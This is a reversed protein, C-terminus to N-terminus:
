DYVAQILEQRHESSLFKNEVNYNKINDQFLKSLYPFIPTQLSLIFEGNFYAGDRNHLVEGNNQMVFKSHDWFYLNNKVLSIQNIRIDRIKVFQDQIIKNNQLITNSTQKHQLGIVINCVSDKPLVCDIVFSKDGNFKEEYYTTQNIKIFTNPDGNCLVGQLEIEFRYSYEDALAVCKDIESEINKLRLM